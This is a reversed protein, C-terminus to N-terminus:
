GLKCNKLSFRDFHVEKECVSHNENLFLFLAHPASPAAFIKAEKTKIKKESKTPAIMKPPPPLVWINKTTPPMAGGQGGTMDAGSELTNKM